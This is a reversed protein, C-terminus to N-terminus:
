LTFTGDPLQKKTFKSFIERFGVQEFSALVINMVRRLEYDESIKCASLVASIWADMTGTLITVFTKKHQRWHITLNTKNLLLVLDEDFLGIFSVCFHKHGCNFLDRLADLPNNEMDLSGLFAAPDAVNLHCADLGRTPSFGLGRQVVDVFVKWEVKTLALPYIENM